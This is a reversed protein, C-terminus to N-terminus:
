PSSDTKGDRTLQTDEAKEEERGTDRTRAPGNRNMKEVDDAASWPSDSAELLCIKQVHSNVVCANALRISCARVINDRGPSLELVRGMKWSLAPATDEQLLAVDGVKNPMDLSQTGVAAIAPVSTEM